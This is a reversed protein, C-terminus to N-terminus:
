LILVLAEIQRASPKPDFCCLKAPTRAFAAASKTRLPDHGIVANHNLIEIALNQGMGVRSHNVRGKGRCPGRAHNVVEVAETGILLCLCSAGDGVVISSPEDHDSKELDEVTASMAEHKEAVSDVGDSKVM